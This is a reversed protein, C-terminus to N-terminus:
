NESHEAAQNSDQSEQSNGRQKLSTLIQQATTEDMATEIQSSILTTVEAGKSWLKRLAARLPPQSFLVIAEWMADNAASLADGALADVFTEETLGHSKISQEFVIYISQGLLELNANLADPIELPKNLNIGIKQLKIATSLTIVAEFERGNADKFSPM